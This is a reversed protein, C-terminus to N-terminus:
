EEDAAALWTRGFDTSLVVADPASEFRQLLAVVKGSPLSRLSAIGNVRRHAELVRFLVDEGEDEPDSLRSTWGHAESGFLTLTGFDALFLSREDEGPAAEMVLARPPTETPQFAVDDVSAALTLGDSLRAVLQGREAAFLTAGADVDHELPYLAPPGEYPPYRAVVGRGREDAGLAWLAGDPTPAFSAWYSVSDPRPLPRPETIEGDWGITQVSEEFCSPRNIFRMECPVRPLASRRLAVVHDSLPWVETRADERGRPIPALEIVRALASPGRGEIPLEQVMLARETRRANIQEAMARIQRALEVSEERSSPLARRYWREPDNMDPPQALAAPVGFYLDTSEEGARRMLAGLAECGRAADTALRRFRTREPGDPADATVRAMRAMHELARELGWPEPADGRMSSVCGFAAGTTQEVLETELAARRRQLFFYIGAGMLLVFPVTVLAFLWRRRAARGSLLEEDADM